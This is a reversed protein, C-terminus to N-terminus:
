TNPYLKSYYNQKRSYAEDLKQKLLARTEIDTSPTNALQNELQSVDNRVLAEERVQSLNMNDVISQTGSTIANSANSLGAGIISSKYQDFQNQTQANFQGTQLETQQNFENVQNEIQANQSDIGQRTQALQGSLQNMAAIETAAYVPNRESTGLRRDSARSTNISKDIQEKSAAKIAETNDQVLTAEIPANYEVLNPQMKSAKIAGYISAGATALTNIGSLINATTSLNSVGTAGPVKTADDIKVEPVVTTTNSKVNSMYQASPTNEFKAKELDELMIDTESKPLPNYTAISKGISLKPKQYITAM